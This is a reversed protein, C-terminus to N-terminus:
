GLVGSMFASQLQYPSAARHQCGISQCNPECIPNLSGLTAFAAAGPLSEELPM